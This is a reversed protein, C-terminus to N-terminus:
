SPARYRIEDYYEAVVFPINEAKWDDIVVYERAVQTPLDEYDVDIMGDDLSEVEIIPWDPVFAPIRLPAPVTCIIEVSLVPQSPEQHDYIVIQSEQTM